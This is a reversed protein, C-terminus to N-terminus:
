VAGSLRPTAGLTLASPLALIAAACLFLHAFALRFFYPDRCVVCKPDGKRGITLRVRTVPHYAAHDSVEEFIIRVARLIRVCVYPCRIYDTRTAFVFKREVNIKAILFMLNHVLPNPKCPLREFLVTALM